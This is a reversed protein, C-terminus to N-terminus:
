SLKHPASPYFSAFSRASPTLILPQKNIFTPRNNLFIYNRPPFQTKKQTYSIFATGKRLM